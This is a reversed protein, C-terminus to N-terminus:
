RRPPPVHIHGGGIGWAEGASLEMQEALAQMEAAKRPDSQQAALQHLETAARVMLLRISEVDPAINDRNNRLPTVM